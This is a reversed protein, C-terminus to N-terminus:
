EENKIAEQRVANHCNQFHTYADSLALIRGRIELMKEGLQVATVDVVDEMLAKTRLKDLTSAVYDRWELNEHIAAANRLRETGILTKIPPNEAIIEEHRNM